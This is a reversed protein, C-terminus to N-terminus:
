KGGGLSHSSSGEAGTPAQTHTGRPSPYICTGVVGQLPAHHHGDRGQAPLAVTYKLTVQCPRAEQGRRNWIDLAEQGLPEGDVM